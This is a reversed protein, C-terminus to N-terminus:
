SLIKGITKFIIKLDLGFSQNQIYELNLGLKQPMIEKLYTEEPNEAKGLIENENIYALSALDTLGPKVSLVKKQEASYLEVYEKVEPRPGVVSMENLIINFLQPLEDLKYKRLFRGVKTTRVDKNGVTILGKQEANVHMSRFKFLLFEKENKGIRKQRYFVGGKSDVLIAFAIIFFPFILLLLAVMSTCIDFLRKIM